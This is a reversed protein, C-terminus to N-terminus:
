HRNELNTIQFSFPICLMIRVTFYARFIFFHSNKITRGKGCIGPTKPLPFYDMNSPCAAGAKWSLFSSKNSVTQM